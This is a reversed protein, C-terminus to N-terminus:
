VTTAQSQIGGRRMEQRREKDTLADACGHKSLQAHLTHILVPAQRSHLELSMKLTREESAIRQKKFKVQDARRQEEDARRRAYHYHHGHRCDNKLM